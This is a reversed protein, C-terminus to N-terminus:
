FSIDYIEDDFSFMGAVYWDSVFDSLIFGVACMYLLRFVLRMFVNNSPLFMAAQYMEAQVNTDLPM